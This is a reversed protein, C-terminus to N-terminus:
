TQNTVPSPEGAYTGFSWLNGELDRATFGRSGYDEERMERAIEAGAATARKYLAAPDDTVVYVNGTGTSLNSFPENGGAATVVMVGGGRPWKLESHHIVSEDNEDAFVAWEEFGFADVLFRIAARGDKYALIPWISSKEQNKM